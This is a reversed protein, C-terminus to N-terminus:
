EQMGNYSVLAAEPNMNCHLEYMQVEQTLRGLLALSRRIGDKGQPRYTQSLLVPLREMRTMQRISNTEGRCIRCIAKLPAAINAGLCHKGNWPTGYVWIGDERFGLLPKDDNVMVVEHGLEPLVERWLRAHTSKGTGSRATFIYVEGDVSIASGHFLLIDREVLKEAIQRYIALRELYPDGFSSGSDGSHVREADILEQTIAIDLEPEEDTLYERCYAESREYLAHIRMPTGALKM